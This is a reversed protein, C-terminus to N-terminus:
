KQIDQLIQQTLIAAGKSNLHMRDAFYSSDTILHTYDLIKFGGLGKVPDLLLKEENQYVPTNLLYLPIAQNQCTEIIKKLYRIQIESWKIKEVSAAKESTESPKFIATNEAYGGIYPLKRVLIQRELSYFSKGLASYHVGLFLGPTSLYDERYENWTAANTFMWYYGFKENMSSENFNWLSDITALLNHNAYSLVVKKVPVGKKLLFDLKWYCYVYSEGSNALSFLSGTSDLTENVGNQLRSDGLVLVQHNGYNGITSRRMQWAMITLSLLCVLGLVLIFIGLRQIFSKM